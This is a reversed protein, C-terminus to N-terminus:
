NPLRVGGRGNALRMNRCTRLSGTKYGRPFREVDAGIAYSSSANSVEAWRHTKKKYCYIHFSITMRPDDTSSYYCISGRCCAPMERKWYKVVSCLESQQFSTCVLRKFCGRTTNYM